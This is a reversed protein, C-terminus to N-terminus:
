REKRRGRNQKARRIVVELGLAQTLRELNEVSLGAEGSMLKSLHSQDIGTEKWLRYRSKGSAEIVRRLEDLVYGVALMRCSVQVNNLYLFEVVDRPYRPNM